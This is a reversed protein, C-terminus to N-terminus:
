LEYAVPGLALSDIIKKLYHNIILIAVAQLNYFDIMKRIKSLKKIISIFFHKLMKHYQLKFTITNSIIKTFQLFIHLYFNYNLNM